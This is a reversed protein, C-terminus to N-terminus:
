VAFGETAWSVPLLVLGRGAMMYAGRGQVIGTAPVGEIEIVAVDGIRLRDAPPLARRFVDIHDAFGKARVKRLGEAETRYGRLGRALDTGTMARVAAATFLACDARGYQFPRDRFDAIVAQLRGQWDRRRDM